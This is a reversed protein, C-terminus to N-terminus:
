MNEWEDEKGIYKAYRKRIVDCYHPDLEMMYCTRRTQECAILTSGSGGFPDLINKGELFYLIDVLLKIPKQHPHPSDIRNKHERSETFVNGGFKMYKFNGSFVIAEWQEGIGGGGNLGANKKDWVGVTRLKLDNKELSEFAQKLTRWQLFFIYTDSLKLNLVKSFVSFDGDGQITQLGLQRRGYKGSDANGYPPDTFVM